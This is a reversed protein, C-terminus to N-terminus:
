NGIILKGNFHRSQSIYKLIYIGPSLELTSLHSQNESQRVLKGDLTYLILIQPLVNSESLVEIKKNRVIIKLEDLNQNELGLPENQIRANEYEDNSNLFTVVNGNTFALLQNGPSATTDTILIDKTNEIETASRIANWMRFGWIHGGFYNNTNVKDSVDGLCTDVSGNTTWIACEPYRVSGTSCGIVFDGPHNPLSFYNPNAEQLIGDMYFLLNTENELVLAVHYWTNNAIPTKFFISNGEGGEKKYSGVYLYGNEVYFKIANVNAGEKYFVQRNLANDVKFYTEITRNQVETTNINDSDNMTIYQSIGDLEIGGEVPPQASMCISALVFFLAILKKM